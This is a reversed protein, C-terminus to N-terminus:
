KLADRLDALLDFKVMEVMGITQSLSEGGQRTYSYKLEGEKDMYSVICLQEMVVSGEPVRLFPRIEGTDSV